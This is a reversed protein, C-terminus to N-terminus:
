PTVIAFGAQPAIFRARFAAFAQPDGEVRTPPPTPTGPPAFLGLLFAARPMTITAHANPDARDQEYVLVRNRLTAVFRENREPFHFNIVLEGEIRPDVRVSLLDFIMATPTNTIFDLSAAAAGEASMRGRLEAAASLYMNRWIASEAQYAMQDYARALAERAEANGPDAFVLHNLLEATWRYDGADYAERARRLVRAAGGMAEVYRPAAASPPLPNLNAPNGDYWGMYRQYVARSNHRMTGYYGRNWWLANLEPPLAIAEAIEEGTFGENMLRVSQDHLFKYADRHTNLFRAVEGQGFRPWSHSSFYVDSRPAYWAITETLYDAWRKSDRVLAGRPTLVNHMTANANEPIWLARFDPFYANMEAPAETEPTLQFEIRVGDIRTESRTFNVTETPPIFTRAGGSVGMGIGSGMSGMPGPELGIGFQYQARRSMAPGAIVNEGIAHELFGAPAIIRVRGAAVDAADVVGRVGAFHDAHSHSYVVAVVPKDGLHARALELAARATEASTLPDLIIFGTNGVVITMNSVDFGRVQYIREHVQFLGHQALLGAHRWLSPNVSDPAPGTYDQPSPLRWAVSGDGARIIPDARTAIFGRTAFDTDQNEAPLLARAGANAARTAESPPAQALAVAPAAGILAAAIM